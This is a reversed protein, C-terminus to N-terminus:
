LIKPTTPPRVASDVSTGDRRYKMSNLLCRPRASVVKGKYLEQIEKLLGEDADKAGGFFMQHYLVLLGPKAKTAIDALEKSSTHFRLIYKQWDTSSENFGVQTYVEHLLVDCGNCNDIISQSPATDGSIVVVKDATEFRYGFAEPWSGHKILFAKVTVNKDKYIIGPKIEHVNM